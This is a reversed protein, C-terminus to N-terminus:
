RDKLIEVESGESLRSNGETVIRSGPPFVSASVAVTSSDIRVPNEPIDIRQSRGGSVVFVFPKKNDYLLATVPVSVVGTLLGSQVKLNVFEGSWLTEGGAGSDVSVELSYTTGGSDAETSVGRVTGEATQKGEPTKYEIVVKAGRKTRKAVSSDVGAVIHNKREGAVRAVEEGKAVEQGPDPVIEVIKGSLPSRIKTREYNWKAKKYSAEFVELQSSARLRKNNASDLEDQSVVGKGFLRKYQNYKRDAEDFDSQATHFLGEAEGLEFARVSDELVMLIDGKSVGDGRRKEIGSVFGDAGSFVRVSQDGEVRGLVTDYLRVEGALVQVARVPVPQQTDIGSSRSFVFRFYLLFILALFIGVMWYFKRWQKGYDKETQSM